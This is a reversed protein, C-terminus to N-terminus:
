HYVRIDFSEFSLKSTRDLSKILQCVEATMTLEILFARPTFKLCLRRVSKVIVAKTYCAIEPLNRASLRLCQYYTILFVVM